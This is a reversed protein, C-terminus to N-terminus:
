KAIAWLVGVIVPILVFIIYLHTVIHRADKSTELRPNFPHALLHQEDRVAQEQKVRNEKEWSTEGRNIRGFTTEDRM